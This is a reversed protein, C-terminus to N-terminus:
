ESLKKMFSADKLDNISASTTAYNFGEYVSFAGVEGKKNIALFGAQLDKLNKHKKIIRKVAEECAEMVEDFQLLTLKPKSIDILEKNLTKIQEAYQTLEENKQMVLNQLTSIKVELEDKTM